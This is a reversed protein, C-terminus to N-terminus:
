GPALSSRDYVRRDTGAVTEGRLRAPMGHARRSGPIYMCAWADMRGGAIMCGGEFSECRVSTGVIVAIGVLKQNLSVSSSWSHRANPSM